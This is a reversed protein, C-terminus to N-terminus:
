KYCDFFGNYIKPGQSRAQNQLKVKVVEAPTACFIAIGGSLLGSLSKKWLPTMTSDKESVLAEKISEYLMFRMGGNIVQRVLAPSLGAFPSFFGQNAQM